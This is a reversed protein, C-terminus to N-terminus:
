MWALHLSYILSCLLVTEDILFLCSTLDTDPWERKSSGPLEWSCVSDNPLDPIQCFLLCRCSETFTSSTLSWWCADSFINSNSQIKFLYISIIYIYVFITWFFKLYSTNHIEWSVGLVSKIGHNLNLSNRSFISSLLTCLRYMLASIRDKLINLWWTVVCLHQHNLFGLYGVM